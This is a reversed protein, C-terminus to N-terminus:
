LEVPAQACFRQPSDGLAEGPAVVPQGGHERMLEADRCEYGDRCDSNGECKRMCFRVESSRPVCFGELPCLEDSACSNTAIDETAPDCPRNAFSGLFFAVCVSEEPCTNFGCGQVTCYGERSTIDCIRDGSPSCDAAISCSDGIEAGCGAAGSALMAVVSVSALVPLSASLSSLWDPRRIRPQTQPTPM